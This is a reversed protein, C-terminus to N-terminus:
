YDIVVMEHGNMQDIQVNLQGNKYDFPIEQQTSARYVKKPTQELKFQLTTDTLSSAEEVVDIGKGFHGRHQPIYHFIHAIYRRKVAQQNLIVEATSPLNTVVTKRPLLQDLVSVVLDKYFKAAVAYYLSFIRHTFYVFHENRVVGATSRTWDIPAQVHGYYHEYTRNFLSGYQQALVQADDTPEIQNGGLYMIHEFSEDPLKLYDMQFIPGHLLRAPFHDFVFQKNQVPAEGSCLIRGGAAIYDNLKAILQDDLRAVDALILVPYKSFDMTGDIIDFLYHSEKLLSVAGDLEETFRGKDDTSTFLLAFDVVATVHECYPQAAELKTFVKGILEYTHPQLQGDPYLQDGVSVQGGHAMSLLTEYELAPENKYSGFDSWGIHFKSTMGLFEKGLNKVYRGVVPFYGYGWQSSALAEVEFHSYDDFNQHINPGMSGDNYFIHSDAKRARIFDSLEHKFRITVQDAFAAVAKEDQLNIGQQTMDRVCNECYCPEQRVIDFFLGPIREGFIALVEAVQEQLYDVYPSNLCLRKYGPELYSAPVGRSYIMRGAVDRQLWEPHQQSIFDDYGVSLYVPTEIGVKTCAAIQQGLLDFSLDPHHNGLKTEYYAFGHHCKAFLTISQVKAALLTQAFEDGNFKEGLPRGIEATHFDLHIQRNPLSM